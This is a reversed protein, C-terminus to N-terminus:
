QTRVDYRNKIEILEHAIILAEKCSKKSFHNLVKEGNKTISVCYANYKGTIKFERDEEYLDIMYGHNILDDYKEKFDEM